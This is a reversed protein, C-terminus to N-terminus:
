PDIINLTKAKTEEMRESGVHPIIIISGDLPKRELISKSRPM